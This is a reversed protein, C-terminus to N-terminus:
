ARWRMRQRITEEAIERTAYPGTTFRFLERGPREEIMIQELWGDAGPEAWMRILCGGLTYYCPHNM